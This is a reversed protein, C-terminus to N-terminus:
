IIVSSREGRFLVYNKFLIGQRLKAANAEKAQKLIQALLKFAEQTRKAEEENEFGIAKEEKDLKTYHSPSNNNNFDLGV